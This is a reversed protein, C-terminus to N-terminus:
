SPAPSNVREFTKHPTLLSLVSFALGGAVSFAMSGMKAQTLASALRVERDAVPYPGFLRALMVDEAVDAIGYVVSCAAFFIVLWKVLGAPEFQLLAWLWLSASFVAIAVAFVIDNWYLVPSVYVDLLTQRDGAPESRLKEKVERLQGADYGWPLMREPVKVDGKLGKLGKLAHDIEDRYPQNTVYAIGGIVLAVFSIAPLSYRLADVLCTLM